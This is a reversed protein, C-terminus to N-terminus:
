PAAINARARCILIGRAGLLEVAEPKLRKWIM